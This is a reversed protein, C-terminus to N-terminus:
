VVAWYFQQSTCCPLATM